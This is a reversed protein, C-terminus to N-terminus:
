RKAVSLLSKRCVSNYAKEQDFKFIGGSEKRMREEVVENDIEVSDRILRGGILAM